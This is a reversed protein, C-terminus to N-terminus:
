ALVAPKDGNSSGAGVRIGQMAGNSDLGALAKFRAIARTLTSPSCGLQDAIDALTLGRTSPCGLTFAVAVVGVRADPSTELFQDVAFMIGLYHISAARYGNPKEPLPEGIKALIDPTYSSRNWGAPDNFDNDVGDERHQNMAPKAQVMSPARISIM